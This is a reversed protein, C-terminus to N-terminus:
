ITGNKQLFLNKETSKGTFFRVLFRPNGRVLSPGGVLVGDALPFLARFDDEFDFHAFGQAPGKFHVKRFGCTELRSM